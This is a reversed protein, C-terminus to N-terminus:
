LETLKAPISTTQCCGLGTCQEGGKAEKVFDEECYNICGTKYASEGTGEVFAVTYCGIATFINKTPSIRLPETIEWRSTGHSEITTSSNYCRYAINTFAHMDGTEVSINEIEINGIFPTPTPSSTEDCRVTFGGGEGQWACEAHIGFPFPIDIDACKSPCGPLSSPAPAPSLVTAAAMTTVCSPFSDSEKPREPTPEIGQRPQDSPREPSLPISPHM